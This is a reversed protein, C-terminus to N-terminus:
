DVYLGYECITYYELNYTADNNYKIIKAPLWSGKEQNNGEVIDGVNYLPKRFDKLM